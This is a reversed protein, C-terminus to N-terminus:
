LVAELRVCHGIFLLNKIDETRSAFERDYTQLMIKNGDLKKIKRAIKTGGLEVIMIADDVPTKQPVTLLMDGTHIRFGRLSDDPCSFFFVKDPAGGEIKGGIIPLLRYQLVEGDSTQVPVRKIISGLADMWADNPTTPEENQKPAEFQTVPRRLPEPRPALEVKGEGAVELETSIPNEVGLVKLIRQALDDGVIRRGSEADLIFSEAVGCKKALAKPTLGKKTRETKITDGLRSM